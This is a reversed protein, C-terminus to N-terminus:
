GAKQQGKGLGSGPRKSIERSRSEVRQHDAAANRAGKASKQKESTGSTPYQSVASISVTGYMKPIACGVPKGVNTTAPQIKVCRIGKPVTAYRVLRM